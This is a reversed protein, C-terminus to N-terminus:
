VQIMVAQKKGRKLLSLKKTKLFTYTIDSIQEGDHSIAKGEIMKKAETKSSVLGTNVLVDVLSDSKKIKKILGYKKALKEEAPTLSSLKQKGFLIGTVKEALKAKDEGHVFTVVEKALTLQALRKEPSEKHKQELKDIRDLSLFTFMRLYDFVSEDTTNIWFQYLDYPSTMEENLWVANGMSKGFKKGTAKDVVLPMTLGYVEDGTKRRIFDIGGTINGWQDSGGIQLTCGLKSHLHYFDYSQLLNYSFETYSIGNESNLRDKIADKKILANVTFHKGVERLFDIASLEKIWDHNNVFKIQGVTLKKINATIKKARDQVVKADVMERESDRGSPDGILATAGGILLIVKHGGKLLHNLLMYPVLNGIHISEATPDVGLYVTQKEKDLVSSLDEGSFQYVFGRKTLEESLKM